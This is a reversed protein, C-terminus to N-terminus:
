KKNAKFDQIYAYLAKIEQATLSYTPMVSKAPKAENLSKAFDEFSTNQINPVLFAKRIGKHTYFELTQERGDTGHCSKCSIGRPNEYLMKAYEKQTIFDDAFAWSVASVLVLFLRFKM